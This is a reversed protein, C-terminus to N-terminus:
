FWFGVNMFLVPKPNINSGMVSLEIPGIFSDYSFTLGYGVLFNAPDWVDEFYVENAGGDARLTLYIKKVFKYQLKLRVIGAHMGFSQIAKIGTFPVHNELYNDPNLGGVSFFHHVPAIQDQRITSGLFLGPQLTFKKSLPIYHDTKLYIIFTNTFVTNVFNDSLPMVYEIRLTSKFGRTSFYARDRTDAYFSCFATGYSSFDRFLELTPDVMIDQKFQFYEYDLGLRFSYANKLRQEAYLTAKYNNFTLENVRVDKDYDNFTFSYFDLMAGFGPKAGNDIMYLARLRPNPGLILDAFLKTRKGLVNRFAGNIMISGKYDNDYHVGASIYGPAAPKVQIVLDAGVEKGELEYFVYEFFRTGYMLRIREQLYEM